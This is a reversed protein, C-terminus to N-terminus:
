YCHKMFYYDEDLSVAVHMLVTYHLHSLYTYQLIIFATLGITPISDSNLHKFVEGVYLCKLSYKSFLFWLDLHDSLYIINM